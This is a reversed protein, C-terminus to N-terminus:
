GHSNRANEEILKHLLKQANELIIEVYGYNFQIEYSKSSNCKTGIVAVILANYHNMKKLSM